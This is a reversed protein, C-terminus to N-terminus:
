GIPSPAGDLVTALEVFRAVASMLRMQEVTRCEAELLRPSCVIVVRCQARSTAVNVRHRDFAFAIGRPADAGSSSTLSVLVVPAEQGQFRDVTGVRVGAPVGARLARVQANYPAVVLVDSAELPRTAGDTDTYTTGILERVHAAVADVEERSSQSRGEHEVPIVFLGDGVAVSRRACSSAPELRGEYYAESTFRCPEPRLRWTQPLFLGLEPPVTTRGDLLHELVSARVAEPQAGQSVQPLQNPDGLLVLNSACTGSAIADALAVQGAEDVILTDVAHDLEPRAFLWATGALLDLDPDLFDENRDSPRICRGHFADDPDSHKKCGRFVFGQEAAEREIRELLNHIAKHSLATVGIRRGARMLAVAMRAGQRTKGAGPPGQVVLYSDALTLAAAPPDLGLDARPPHRELVATLAAYSGDGALTARAFRLVADRQAGDHIPPEPVLARPLPEATRAVGRWLRVCGSAHDVAVSYVKQTAPDVAKGGIKHEQEPFGLTYVLSRKDPVPEGVPVLGGITDTDEILEDEDLDLHHFWEWYQPKAERAHYELLQALLWDADGEAKSRALLAERVRAREADRERTEPTPEREEPAPRWPLGAPRRELLWAHLAATSRCDEENYRAIGELLASDGSELWREFLVSSEDGGMVEAERVFGYLAEVRKISYSDVSARLSQRVVRYLDVLVAGRLFDDVDQERSGHEGMLRRLMSREHDGYHYVHLGPHIRRRAVIWDVLEGFARGEGARDTGWWARYRIEGAEDRFCAGFLYELGRDAEFFPHGEFDLWVDGVDPAPMLHFGRGDELPLLDVRHEGTRRHHLQLAAQHRLTEFTEARLEALRTGKPADGLTELTDLGAAALREAHTRGLGAVLVLHDDQVLRGHCERRWRCVSCHDCPWPYTAAAAEIAALFRERVRRYYPAFEATRFSERVGSGLEVHLREPAVGQIRELQEAYYCLQLVHEPRTSRALKTEVPEYVGGEGLELFDARGRWAGDCLHPQYIVEAARIRIAEETLRVSVPDSGVEGPFAVVSRGAAELRALYGAEHDEGKQRILEAHPDSFVPRRREGRAVAHELQTLHPCSVFGSLDTPSVTLRGDLARM